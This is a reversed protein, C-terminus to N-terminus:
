PAKGSAAAGGPGTVFNVAWQRNEPAIALREVRLSDLTLSAGGVLSRVEGLLRIENPGVTLVPFVRKTVLPSLSIPIHNAAGGVTVLYRPLSGIVPVRRWPNVVHYHLTM